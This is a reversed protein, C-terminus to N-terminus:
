KRSAASAIYRPRHSVPLLPKRVVDNEKGVESHALNPSTNDCVKASAASGPLVIIQPNGGRRQPIFNGRIVCLGRSKAPM